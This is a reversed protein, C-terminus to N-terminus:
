NIFAVEVVVTAHSVKQQIGHLSLNFRIYM